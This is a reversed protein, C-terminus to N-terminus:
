QPDMISVGDVVFCYPYMDPASPGLTVTWLGTQEDRVMPVRGAFQVDVLVEKAQDNKYQFTVTGDDHCITGANVQMCCALFCMLILITKTKM